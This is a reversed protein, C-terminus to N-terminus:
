RFRVRPLRRLFHSVCLMLIMTMKGWVHFTRVAIFVNSQRAQSLLQSQFEASVLRVRM